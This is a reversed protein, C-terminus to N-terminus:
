QMRSQLAMGPAMNQAIDFMGGGFPSIKERETTYFGEDRQQVGDFANYNYEKDNTGKNYKGLLNKIEDQSLKRENTNYMYDDYVPNDAKFLHSFQAM